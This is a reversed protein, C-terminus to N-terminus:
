LLRTDKSLDRLAREVRREVAELAATPDLRVPARGVVVALRLEVLEGAGAPLLEGDLGVRPLAEGGGDREDEVLGSRAM